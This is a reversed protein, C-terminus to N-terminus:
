EAEAALPPLGDFAIVQECWAAIALLADDGGHPGVLQLGVPMNDTAVGCPLTIAPM